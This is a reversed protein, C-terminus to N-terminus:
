QKSIHRANANRAQRRSRDWHPTWYWVWRYFMVWSSSAKLGSLYLKVYKCVDAKNLALLKSFTARRSSDSQKQQM